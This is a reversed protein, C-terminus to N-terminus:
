VPDASEAQNKFQQIRAKKESAEAAARLIIGPVASQNMIIFCLLPLFGARFYLWSKDGNVAIMMMLVMHSAATRKTFDFM